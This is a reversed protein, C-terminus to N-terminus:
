VGLGLYDLTRMLLAMVLLGILTSFFANQRGTHKVAQPILEIVSLVVMIGAVASMGAAVTSRTLEGTLQIIGMIFLVGAPEAMGSLFAVRVAYGKNRTAFYLPLSVAMGEPINHLGIAIALPLGFEIGRLSAVCVAIGEPFNHLSIGAATLIGSWLVQKTETNDNKLLFNDLEPEPIYYKLLTFILAGIIFFVICPFYNLDELVTPILDFFSVSLMFGAAAGQWIGLKQVSLDQQLVALLGGVGTFAGALSSLGLALPFNANVSEATVAAEHTNSIAHIVTSSSETLQRLVNPILEWIIRTSEPLQM